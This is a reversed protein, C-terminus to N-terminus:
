IEFKHLAQYRNICRTHIHIRTRFVEIHAGSTDGGIGTELVGTIHHNCQRMDITTSRGAQAPGLSVLLPQTGLVAVIMPM